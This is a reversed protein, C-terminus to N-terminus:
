HPLHHRQIWGRGEGAKGTQGHLLLEGFSHHSCLYLERQNSWLHGEVKWDKKRKKERLFANKHPRGPGITEVIAACPPVALMYSSTAWQQAVGSCCLNPSLFDYNVVRSQQLQPLQVTTEWEAPSCSVPLLSAMAQISNMEGGAHSSNGHNRKELAQGLGPGAM